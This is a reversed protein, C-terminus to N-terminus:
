PTITKRIKSAYIYTYVIDLRFCITSCFALMNSFFHILGRFHLDIMWNLCSITRIYKTVITILSRWVINKVVIRVISTSNINFIHVLQTVNPSQTTIHTSLNRTTNTSSDLLMPRRYLTPPYWMNYGTASAPFLQLTSVGLFINREGWNHYKKELHVICKASRNDVNVNICIYWIHVIIFNPGTGDCM